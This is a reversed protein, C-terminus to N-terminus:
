EIQNIETNKRFTIAHLHPLTDQNPINALFQEEEANTM